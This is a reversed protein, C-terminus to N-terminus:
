HRRFRSPRQSVAHFPGTAPGRILAKSIRGSPGLRRGIRRIAFLGSVLLAPAAAPEPISVIWAEPHGIPNVGWGTITRADASIGVASLLTWGKLDVGFDTRLVDALKRMGHQEDWIFAAPDDLGNGTGVVVSGDASVAYADSWFSGGPLDGLGTMTGAFWRFAEHGAGSEGRGVITAGDASVAYAVSSAAGGPLDGLPEPPGGAWRVAHNTVSGNAEGIVVSGDSSADYAVSSFVGGDLDGLGSMTGPEWRFAEAGRASHSWGVITSGDDSVGHAYGVDLTGELTGLDSMAGNEWRFPHPRDQPGVYSFGVVVSGDGSVASAESWPSAAPLYGLGQMGGVRTWRFAQSGAETASLGVVTTGDASIGRPQSFFAGGPLDGLGLLEVPLARAPSTVFLTTVCAFIRLRPTM